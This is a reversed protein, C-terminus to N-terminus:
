RPLPGSERRPPPAAAGARGPPRHRPAPPTPAGSRRSCPGNDTWVGQSNNGPTDGQTWWKATWTHSNFSVQSGGTYATTSNWPPATCSGPKPTPSGTPPPSQPPTAGAFRATFKTFDWPQQTTNSCIGNDNTNVCPRDRNVSWYTYRTLTKKLCFVAYSIQDHSSNLRTSKRDLLPEVTLLQPMEMSMLAM